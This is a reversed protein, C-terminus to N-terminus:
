DLLYSYISLLAKAQYNSEHAVNTMKSLALSKACSKYRETITKESTSTVGAQETTDTSQACGNKKRWHDITEDVSIIHGTGRGDFPVDSDTPSHFHHLNVPTSTSCNALDGRYQGALSVIATIQEPMVCALKYAMFGGASYGFIFLKDASVNYDAKVKTILETLYDTDSNAVNQSSNNSSWGWMTNNGKPSVAVLNYTDALMKANFISSVKNPTGPAGHLLLAVGQANQGAPQYLLSDRNSVTLCEYGGELSLGACAVPDEVTPVPTSENGGGGSGGGCATLALSLLLSPATTLRTLQRNTKMTNNVMKKM